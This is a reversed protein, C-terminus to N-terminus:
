AMRDSDEMITEIIGALSEVLAPDFSGNDSNRLKAFVKELKRRQHEPISSASATEAANDLSLIDRQAHTRRTV